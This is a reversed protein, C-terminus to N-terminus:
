DLSIGLKAAVEYEHITPLKNAWDKLPGVLKFVTAAAYGSARMDETPKVFGAKLFAEECGENESWSKLCVEDSALPKGPMNVSATLLPEGTEEDVVQIAISGDVSYRHLSILGAPGYAFPGVKLNTLM